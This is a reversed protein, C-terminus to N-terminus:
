RQATDPTKQTLGDPLLAALDAYAARVRREFAAQGYHTHAREMAAAALRARLAADNALLAFGRMIAPATPAVLFAVDPDLVQTHSVIDTALIARGAAMYSYIKMPTNLGKTRPSCLIDAQALLWPLHALPAPGLFMVRHSAGASAMRRRAAEIEGPRGGGVVALVADSDAPLAAVADALLDIGQYTELNGVYLGLVGAAGTAARLDLVDDPPHGQPAPTAIDPLLHITQVPAMLAVRHAVMPCVALVLSARRAAWAEIRDLPWRVHRVFSWKEAIQDVILSDMDYVVAIRRMLGALLAPYVAEEVAHIVDYRQRLLLRFATAMLSVGCLLKAISFGIGVHRVFPPRAARFLRVGVIRVDEGEHLTVLDIEHGMGGLAEALARVAIPTGREVFFPQPALLLIKM